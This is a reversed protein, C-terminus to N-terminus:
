KYAFQVFSKENLEYYKSENRCFLFGDKASRKAFREVELTRFNTSIKEGKLPKKKIQVTCYTNM